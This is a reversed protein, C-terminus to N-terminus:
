SVPSPAATRRRALSRPQRRLCPESAPRALAPPCPGPRTERGPPNGSTQGFSTAAPARGIPAPPLPLRHRPEPARAPKSQERPDAAIPQRAVRKRGTQVDEERLWERRPMARVLGTSPRLARTEPRRIRASEM